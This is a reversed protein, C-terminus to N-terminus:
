PTISRWSTTQHGGVRAQVGLQEGVAVGAVDDVAVAVPAALRDDGVEVRAPVREVDRDLVPLVVEVDAGDHAVGVREQGGLHVDDAVAAPVPAARHDGVAVLVDAVVRVDVLERRPRVLLLQGDEPM